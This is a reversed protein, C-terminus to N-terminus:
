VGYGINLTHKITHIQMYTLPSFMFYCKESEFKLSNIYQLYTAVAVATIDSTLPHKTHYKTRKGHHAQQWFNEFFLRWYEQPLPTGADSPTSPMIFFWSKEKM